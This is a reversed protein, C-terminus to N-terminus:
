RRSRGSHGMRDWRGRRGSLHSLLWRVWRGLPIIATTLRLDATVIQPAGGSVTATLAPSVPKGNLLFTGDVQRGETAVARITVVSPVHAGVQSKLRGSEALNISGGAKLHDGLLTLLGDADQGSPHQYPQFDRTPLNTPDPSAGPALPTLVSTLQPNPQLLIDKGADISHVTINKAVM